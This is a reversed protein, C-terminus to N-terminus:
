GYSAITTSYNVLVTLAVSSDVATRKPPGDNENNQLVHLVVCHRVLRLARTWHIRVTRVKDWARDVGGRMPILGPRRSLLPAIGISPELETLRHNAFLRPAVSTHSSSVQGKIM